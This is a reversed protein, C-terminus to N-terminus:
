WDHTYPKVRFDLTEYTEGVIVDFEGDEIEWDMNVLDPSATATARYRTRCPPDDEDCDDGCCGCNGSITSDTTGSRRVNGSIHKWNADGVDYTQVPDTLLDIYGRRPKNSMGSSIADEVNSELTSRVSQEASREASTRSSCSTSTEEWPYGSIDDLEDRIDLFAKVTEEALQIYRNNTASTETSYSGEDLYYTDGSDCEVEIPDAQGATPFQGPSSIEHAVRLPTGPDDIDQLDDGSVGPYVTISYDSEVIECQLGESGQINETVINRSLQDLNNRLDMMNSNYNTLWNNNWTEGGGDEGLQLSANNVAYESELPINNYFFFDAYSRTDVIREIEDTSDGVVDSLSEALPLSQIAMIMSMIFLALM